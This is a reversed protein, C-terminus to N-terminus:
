RVPTWSSGTMRRARRARRQLALRLSTVAAILWATAVLWGGILDSAFYDDLFVLFIGNTV